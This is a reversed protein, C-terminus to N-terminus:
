VTEVKLAIKYIASGDHYVKTNADSVDEDIRCLVYDKCKCITTIRCGAGRLGKLMSGTVINVAM